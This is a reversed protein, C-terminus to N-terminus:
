ILGVGEPPIDIGGGINVHIVSPHLLLPGQKCLVKQVETISRTKLLMCMARKMVSLLPHNIIGFFCGLAVSFCM